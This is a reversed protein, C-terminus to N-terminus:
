EYRWIMASWHNFPNLEIVNTRSKGAQPGYKGASADESFLWGSLHQSNGRRPSLPINFVVLSGFYELLSPGIHSDFCDLLATDAAVV